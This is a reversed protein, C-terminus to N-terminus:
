YFAPNPNAFRANTWVLPPLPTAALTCFDSNSNYTLPTHGISVLLFTVTADLRVPFLRIAGAHSQMLMDNIAVTAGMNELMGGGNADIGNAATVTDAATAFRSILVASDSPTSVRVAPPWSLGFGNMNAFPTKSGKFAIGAYDNLAYVTTKAAALVTADTTQLTGIEDTPWMAAFNSIPYNANCWPWVVTSNGAAAAAAAREPTAGALAETMIPKGSLDSGVVVASANQVWTLV